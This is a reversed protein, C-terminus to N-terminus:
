FSPFAIEIWFPVDGGGETEAIRNM